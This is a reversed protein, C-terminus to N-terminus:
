KTKFTCNYTIEFMKSPKPYLILFLLTVLRIYDFIINQTPIIIYNFKNLHLLGSNLTKHIM